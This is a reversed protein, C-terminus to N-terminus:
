YRMPSYGNSGGAFSGTDSAGSVFAWDYGTASAEEPSRSRMIPPPTAVRDRRAGRARDAFDSTSDEYVEHREEEREVSANDLAAAMRLRLSSRFSAGSVVSADEYADRGRGRDPSRLTELEEDGPGAIGLDQCIEESLTDRGGGSLSILTDQAADVEVRAAIPVLWLIMHRGFVAHTREMWTLRQGSVGMYTEVVTRNEEIGMLQEKLFDFTFPIILCSLLVVKGAILMFFRRSWSVVFLSGRDWRVVLAYLLLAVNAAAALISYALFLFFLKQNGFGVCNNIFQCHHDMRYVCTDCIRCHHARDPKWRRDCILCTRAFSLGELPRVAEMPGPHTTAAQVHSLFSLAVLGEYVLFVIAGANTLRLGALGPEAVSWIPWIAFELVVWNALALCVWLAVCAQIGVRDRVLWMGHAVLM